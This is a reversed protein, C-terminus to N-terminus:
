QPTDAPEYQKVFKMFERRENEDDFVRRPLMVKMTQFYLLIGRKSDAAQMFDHWSTKVAGANEVDVLVGDNGFELLVTQRAPSKSRIRKEARRPAIWFHYLLILGAVFAVALRDPWTSTVAFILVGLGLLAIIIQLQVRELQRAKEALWRYMRVPKQARDIADADILDDVTTVFRYQFAVMTTFNWGTNEAAM